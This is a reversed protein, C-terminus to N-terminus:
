ENLAAKLSEPKGSNNNYHVPTTLKKKLWGIYVNQVDLYRTIINKRIIKIPHYLVWGIM